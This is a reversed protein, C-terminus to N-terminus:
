SFGGVVGRGGMAYMCSDTAGYLNKKKARTMRAKESRGKAGSTERPARRRACNFCCRYGEGASWSWFVEVENSLVLLDM